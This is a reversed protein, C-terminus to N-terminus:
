NADVFAAKRFETILKHFDCPTGPFGIAHEIVEAVKILLLGQSIAADRFCSAQDTMNSHLQIAEEIETKLRKIEADKQFVMEDYTEKAWKLKTALESDGSILVKIREIELNKQRVEEQLNLLRMWDNM